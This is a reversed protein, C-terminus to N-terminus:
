HYFVLWKNALAESVDVTTTSGSVAYAFSGCGEHLDDECIATRYGSFDKPLTIFAGEGCYLAYAESVGPDLEREDLMVYSIDVPAQSFEYLKGNIAIGKTKHGCFGSLEGNEYRYSLVSEGRYTVDNGLISGSVDIDKPSLNVNKMIEADKEEDRFFSGYWKERILRYHNAICVTNNPFFNMIYRAGDERSAAELSGERYAGLKAL